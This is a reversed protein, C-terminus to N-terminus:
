FGMGPLAPTPTGKVETRPPPPPPVQVRVQAPPPPVQAPAVTERIGLMAKLEAPTRLISALFGNWDGKALARISQDLSERAEIIEQPTPDIIRWLLHTGMQILERRLRVPVDKGFTGYGAAIAGAALQILKNFWGKTFFDAVAELCNGIGEGGSHSALEETPIGAQRAFYEFLPDLWSTLSLEAL